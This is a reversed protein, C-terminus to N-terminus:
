HRLGYRGHRTSCRKRFIPYSAVKNKWFPWSYDLKDVPRGRTTLGNNSDFTYGDLWIEDADKGEFVGEDDELEVEVCETDVTADPEDYISDM